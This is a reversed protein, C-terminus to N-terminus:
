RDPEYAERESFDPVLDSIPVAQQLQIHSAIYRSNNPALLLAHELELLARRKYGLAKFVLARNYLAQHSTGASLVIARSYDANAAAYDKVSFFANGRNIYISESPELEELIAVAQTHSQIALAYDGKSALILGQNSYSAALDRPTQNNNQIALACPDEADTQSEPETPNVTAQQEETPSDDEGTNNVLSELQVEIRFEPISSALLFCEQAVNRMSDASTPTESIEEMQAHSVSASLLFLLIPMRHFLPAHMTYILKSSTGGTIM